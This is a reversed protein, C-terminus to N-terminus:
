KRFDYNLAKRITPRFEAIRDRHWQETDLDPKLPTSALLEMGKKGLISFELQLDGDVLRPGADLIFDFVKYSIERKTIADLSNELELLIIYDNMRKSKVCKSLFAARRESAYQRRSVLTDYSEELAIM